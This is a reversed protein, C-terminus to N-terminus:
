NCPAPAGNEVWRRITLKQENTLKPMAGPPMTNDEVRQLIDDRLGVIEVCDSLDSEAEATTRRRGSVSYGGDGGDGGDGESETHCTVCKNHMIAFIQDYTPNQPAADPDVQDLPLDGSGNCALATLVIVISLVRAARLVRVKPLRPELETARCRPM